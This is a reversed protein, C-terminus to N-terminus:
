GRSFPSEIVINQVGGPKRALRRSAVYLADFWGLRGNYYSLNYIGVLEFANEVLFSHIADLTPAGKYLDVLIIETYISSINPLMTKSGRLVELDFGQTDSKLLDIQAIQNTKCYDDVTSVAVRNPHETGWGAPGVALFSSMDSSSNENFTRHEEVSGLAINNLVVNQSNEYLSVLTQFADRHPEFAHITGRFAASLRATTQGLNAGVDFFVPSSFPGILRVLDEFPDIGSMNQALIRDTIRKLSWL